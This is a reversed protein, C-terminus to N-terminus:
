GDSVRFFVEMGGAVGFLGLCISILMRGTDTEGQASLGMTISMVYIGIAVIFVWTFFGLIIGILVKM